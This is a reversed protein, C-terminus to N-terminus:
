NTLVPMVANYGNIENVYALTPQWVTQNRYVPDFVIVELKLTEMKSIVPIIIKKGVISKLCKNDEQQLLQAVARTCLSLKEEGGLGQFNFEATHLAAKQIIAVARQNEELAEFHIKVEEPKITIQPFKKENIGVDVGFVQPSTFSRRIDFTAPLTVIFTKHLTRQM